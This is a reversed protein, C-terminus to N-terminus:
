MEFHLSIHNNFKGVLIKLGDHVSTRFKIETTYITKSNHNNTNLIPGLFYEGRSGHGYQLIPKDRGLSYIWFLASLEPRGQISM